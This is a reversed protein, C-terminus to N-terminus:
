LLGYHFFSFIYTRRVILVSYNPFYSSKEMGVYFIIFLKKKSTSYFSSISCVQAQLRNQSKIAKGPQYIMIIIPLFVIFFLKSNSKLQKSGMSLLMIDSLFQPNHIKVIQCNKLLLPLLSLLSTEM